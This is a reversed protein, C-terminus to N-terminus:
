DLQYCILKFTIINGFFRWFQRLILRSKISLHLPYSWLVKKLQEIKNLARWFPGLLSWPMEPESFITDGRKWVIENTQLYSSLYAFDLFKGLTAKGKKKINSWFIDINHHIFTWIEINTYFIKNNCVSFFLKAIRSKILAKTAIIWSNCQPM